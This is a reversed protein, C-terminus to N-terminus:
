TSFFLKAEEKRRKILGALPKPSGQGTIYHSTWWAELTEKSAKTNILRTLTDSFGINYFYTVLADFQNQNLPIKIKQMVLQERPGLDEMLAKTADAETKISARSFALAKNASGKIFNGKDDRMARGYGETWIGAPCMKPQLGVQSLDGDHLAESLKILDIGKTGTKM